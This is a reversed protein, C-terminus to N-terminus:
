ARYPRQKHIASCRSEDQSGATGTRLAAGWSALIDAAGARLLQVQIQLQWSRRPAKATAKADTAAAQKKKEPPRQQRQRQIQRRRQIQLPQTLNM